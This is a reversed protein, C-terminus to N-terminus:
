RKKGTCPDFGKERRMKTRELTAKVEGYLDEFAARLADFFTAQEGRNTRIFAGADSEKQFAWKARQTMVGQKDGGVVWYAAYADILRKSEFDAVSVTCPVKSINSTLELVTCHLSCTGASTGDTYEVLMRSYNFAERDMGCHLCAPHRVIDDEAYALISTCALLFICPWLRVRM